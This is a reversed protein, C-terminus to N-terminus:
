FYKKLTYFIYNINFIMIIIFLKSKFGNTKVKNVRFFEKCKRFHVKHFFIYFILFQRLEKKHILINNQYRIINTYM